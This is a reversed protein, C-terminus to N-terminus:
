YLYDYIMKRFNVKKVYKLTEEYPIASLTKGDRSYDDNQLWRSVNGSGANYAALATDIEGGYQAILRNLYWCGAEINIEPTFLMDVDFNEIGIEEGAWIGTTDSIQMLGKAWKHSQAQANFNSETKIVAYVLNEDLHYIEAFKEVYESYKKPFLYPLAIFRAFLIMVALFLTVSTIKKLSKINVAYFM